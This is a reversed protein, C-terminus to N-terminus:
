QLAGGEIEQGTGLLGLSKAVRRPTELLDTDVTLPAGAYHTHELDHWLADALAPEGCRRALLAGLYLDIPADLSGLTGLQRKSPRESSLIAQWATLQKAAQQPTNLILFRADPAADGALLIRAVALIAPASSKESMRALVEPRGHACQAFVTALAFSHPMQELGVRAIESAADFAGANALQGAARTYSSEWRIPSRLVQRNGAREVLACSWLLHTVGQSLDGRDLESSGLLFWADSSLPFNGVVFECARHAADLDKCELSAEALYIGLAEAFSPTEPLAMIIGLGEELYAKAKPFAFVRQYERGLQMLLYARYDPPPSEALGAELLDLNRQVKNRDLVVSPDYGYHDLQIESEFILGRKSVAPFIQEHIRQQFRHAPHNRFVRLTRVVDMPATRKPDSGLRRNLIQVNMGQVDPRVLPLHRRMWQASQPTLREDADVVLIWEGRAHELGANRAASFDDEWPHEVVSAGLERAIDPTRDSSGTDVLIVEGGLAAVSQICEGIMAAEDKAIICTSVLPRRGAVAM